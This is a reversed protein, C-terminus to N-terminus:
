EFDVQVVFKTNSLLNQIALSPKLSKTPTTNIIDKDKRMGWM